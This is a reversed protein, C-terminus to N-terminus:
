GERTGIIRVVLGAIFLGVSLWLFNPDYEPVDAFPAALGKLSCIETTKYFCERAMQFDDGMVDYFFSIWWATAGVFGLVGFLIITGGIKSIM